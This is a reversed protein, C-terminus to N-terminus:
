ALGGLLLRWSCLNPLYRAPVCDAPFANGASWAATALEHLLCAPPLRSTCCTPLLCVWAAVSLLQVSVEQRAAALERVAAELRGQLGTTRGWRAPSSAASSRAGGSSAPSADAGGLGSGGRQTSAPTAATAAAQRRLAAVEQGLQQEAQRAAALAQRLSYADSSDRQAEDLEVAQLLRSVMSVAPFPNSFLGHAAQYCATAAPLMPHQSTTPGRGESCSHGPWVVLLVLLVAASPAACSDVPTQGCVQNLVQQHLEQAKARQRGLDEFAQVLLLV